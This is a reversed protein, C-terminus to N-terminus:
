NLVGIVGTGCLETESYYGTVRPVRVCKQRSRTIEFLIGPHLRVGTGRHFRVTELLDRFQTEAEGSHNWLCLPAPCCM